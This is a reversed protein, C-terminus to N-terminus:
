AHISCPSEHSAIIQNRDNRGVSLLRYKKVAVGVTLITTTARVHEAMVAVESEDIKDYSQPVQTTPFKPAESGGHWNSIASSCEIM